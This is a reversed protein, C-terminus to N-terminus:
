RLAMHNVLGVSHVALDRIDATEARILPIIMKYLASPTVSFLMASTLPLPSRGERADPAEPSSSNGIDPSICRFGTGVNPPVTRFAFMLYNRWLKFYLQRDTPPKRPTAASRLLSARNDTVPSPELYSYLANIKPMLISWAELVARPCQTPVNQYDLFHKLCMAWPDDAVSVDASVTNTSLSTSLGGLSGTMHVSSVEDEHAYWAPCSRDTLWVMDISNSAIASTVAQKEGPPLLHTTEECAAQCIRDLVDIVPTETVGAAESLGKVEKLIHAGLRRSSSRVSCLILLALGEVQYFTTPSPAPGSMGGSGLRHKDGHHFIHHHKTTETTVTTNSLAGRWTTLLQLLMRLTNDLQQPSTDPVEKAVFSVFESLVDNRWDIFDLLLSQLSQFALGRLEEDIHLTLRCLLSLLETRSMGDPILRPIAAICTRFLDIKAKRDGSLLSEEQEKVTTLLLPRGCQLDLARIIDTFVKRILPYYAAMGISRAADETLVKNLFTKKVRLLTNGSPMVNASRPMPPDGDKQQLSDAAVLFARLGINMREPTLIIKIPRGVSLLEFVIERMAFDLREQAIFQIIKVFINLPTDRPVVGSFYAYLIISYIRHICKQVYSNYRPQSKGGVKPDRRFYPISLVSFDHSHPRTAKM